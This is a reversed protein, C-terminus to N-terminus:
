QVGFFIIIHAKTEAPENAFLCMIQSLPGASLSQFDTKSSKRYELKRDANLKSYPKVHRGRVNM